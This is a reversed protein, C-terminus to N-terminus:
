QCCLMINGTTRIRGMSGCGISGCGTGTATTGPGAAVTGSVGGAVPDQLHDAQVGLTWALSLGSSLWTPVAAMPQGDLAAGSTKVHTLEMGLGRGM